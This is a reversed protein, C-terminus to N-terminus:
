EWVIVEENRFRGIVEITYGLGTLIEDTHEGLEPAKLRVSAPTRGFDWPFGVMRTKQCLPHDFDVFYHESEIL